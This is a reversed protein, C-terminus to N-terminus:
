SLNASLINLERVLGLEDAPHVVVVDRTGRITCWKTKQTHTQYEIEIRRIKYDRSLKLDSIIGYQYQKDFEKDSKLFLIVDGVKPDMDSQFWKPQLMLSPVYSILWAKYWIDHLDNNKPIIVKVDETVTVTGVPCCGNNRALLLRNPTILDLNELDKRVNRIAIPLNNISNAVQDGLTEWKIVSLRNNYLQKAFSDKVHRIKREVKGHMYHAGVPCLEYLVGYEHLKTNIDSFKIKMTECGKVHQSGADPLIKKPYGVKCSFRIFGLLFSEVSYDECVKIDIDGTTCCCFIM